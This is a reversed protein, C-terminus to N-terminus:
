SRRSNLVGTGLTPPHSTIGFAPRRWHCLGYHRFNGDEDGVPRDSAGALAGEKAAKALAQM